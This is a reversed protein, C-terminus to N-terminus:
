SILRMRSYLVSLYYPPKCIRGEKHGHELYHRKAEEENLHYLDPYRGTYYIWDFEQPNSLEEM